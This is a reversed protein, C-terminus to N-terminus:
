KQQNLNRVSAEWQDLINDVLDMTDNKKCFCLRIYNNGVCRMESSFFVCAPIVAIGKTVALWRTFQLCLPENASRFADDLVNAVPVMNALVFLGAQPKSPKAGVAKLREVLRDRIPQLHKRIRLLFSQECHLLATEEELVQALAEQLVCGTAGFMGNKVVKVNDALAKPAILWGLRWGTACLLKGASSVTM